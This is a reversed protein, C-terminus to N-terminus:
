LVVLIFYILNLWLQQEMLMAKIKTGEKAAFRNWLTAM